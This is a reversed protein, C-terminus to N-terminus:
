KEVEHLMSLWMWLFVALVALGSLTLERGQGIFGAVLGQFLVGPSVALFAWFMALRADAARGKGGIATAIWHSLMAIAYAILPWFFVMGMMAGGLRAELPISPDLYADRALRPWQAVFALLSGGILMAFLSGERPQQAQKRAIVAKPRRWTELIDLVVSM